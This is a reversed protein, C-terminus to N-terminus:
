TEGDHGPSPSKSSNSAARLCQLIDAIEPRDHPQFTWCSEMTKWVDEPFVACRSPHEGLVVRAYVVMEMCEHFPVKGSITEYIVVGLAYCDSSTTLRTKDFGFKEPALLEPGM